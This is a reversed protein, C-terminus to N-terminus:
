KRKQDKFLLYYIKLLLFSQYRLHKFTHLFFAPLTLSHDCTERTRRQQWGDLMMINTPMHGKLSCLFLVTVHCCFSIGQERPIENYTDSLLFWCENKEHETAAEEVRDNLQPDKTVQPIHKLKISFLNMKPPDNTRGHM